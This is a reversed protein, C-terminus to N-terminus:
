NAIDCEKGSLGSEKRGDKKGCGCVPMIELEELPLDQQKKSTIGM